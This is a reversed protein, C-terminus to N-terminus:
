HVTFGSDADTLSFYLTLTVCVLLPVLVTFRLLLLVSVAMTAKFFLTAVFNLGLQKYYVCFYHARALSAM